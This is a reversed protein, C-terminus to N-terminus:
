GEDSVCGRFSLASVCSNGCETVRPEEYIISHDAVVTCLTRANVMATALCPGSTVRHFFLAERLCRVRLNSQSTNIRDLNHHFFLFSINQMVGM